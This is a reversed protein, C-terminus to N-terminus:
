YDLYLVSKRNKKDQNPIKWRPKTTLSQKYKEIDIKIPKVKYESSIYETAYFNIPIGKSLYNNKITGYIINVDNINVRVGFIIGELEEKEFSNLNVKKTEEPLFMRYECEYRWDSSKTLLFESLKAMEEIQNHLNIPNPAKKDYNMQNLALAKSNITLHPVGIIMRTKFILCIGKHQDAYHSWMLVNDNRGSFCCALPLPFDKGYYEARLLNGERRFLGNKISDELDEIVQERTCRSLKMVKNIHNMIKNIHAEETSESYYRIVSDFPDNYEDPRQFYLQNNALNEIVYQRHNGNADIEKKLSQYKYLFKEDTM